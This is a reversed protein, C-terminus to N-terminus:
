PSVIQPAQLGPGPVRLRLWFVALPNRPAALLSARGAPGSAAGSCARRCPSSAPSRACPAPSTPPGAAGPPPSLPRPFPLMRHPDLGPASRSANCLCRSIVFPRSQM